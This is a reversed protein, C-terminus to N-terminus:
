AVTRTLALNLSAPKGGGAAVAAMGVDSYFSGCDQDCGADLGAQMVVSQNAYGGDGVIPGWHHAAYADSVADCDAVVSGRFGSQGRLWDTLVHRNLCSPTSNYAGAVAVANYSCM